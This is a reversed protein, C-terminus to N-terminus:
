KNLKHYAKVLIKSTGKCKYRRLGNNVSWQYQDCRWDNVKQVNKKSSYLFLYEGHPRCPPEKITQFKHENGLISLVESHEVSNQNKGLPQVGFLATLQKAEESLMHKM